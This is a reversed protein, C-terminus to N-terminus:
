LICLLYMITQVAIYVGTALYVYVCVSQQSARVEEIYAKM